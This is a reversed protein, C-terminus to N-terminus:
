FRDLLCCFIYSFLFIFVWMWFSCMELYLYQLWLCRFTLNLGIFGHMVFVAMLWDFGVRKLIMISVCKSTSTIFLDTPIDMFFNFFLGCGKHFSFFIFVSTTHYLPWMKGCMLLWNLDGHQLLDHCEAGNKEERQDESIWLTGAVLSHCTNLVHNFDRMVFFWAAFWLWNYDWAFM